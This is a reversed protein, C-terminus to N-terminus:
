KGFRQQLLAIASLANSINIQPDFTLRPLPPGSLNRHKYSWTFQAAQQSKLTCDYYPHEQTLGIPQHFYAGKTTLTQSTDKIHCAQLGGIIQLYSGIPIFWDAVFSLSMLEYAVLAPNTLGISQAFMRSVDLELLVTRSVHGRGITRELTSVSGPPGHLVGRAEDEWFFSKRKRIKESPPELNHLQILSYIDSLTPMWAYSHELWLATANNRNVRRNGRFPNRGRRLSRWWHLIRRAATEVLNVLGRWEAVIVAMNVDVNTMHKWMKWDVTNVADQVVSGSPWLEHLPIHIPERWNGSSAHSPLADIFEPKLNFRVDVIADQGKYHIRTHGNEVFRRKGDVIPSDTGASYDVEFKRVYSFPEPIGFLSDSSSEDLVNVYRDRYVRYM